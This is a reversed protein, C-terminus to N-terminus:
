LRSLDIDVQEFDVTLALKKHSAAVAFETATSEVLEQFKIVTLELTLNGMEIKDYNLLDNLM